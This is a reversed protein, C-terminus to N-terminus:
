KKTIKKLKKKFIPDFYEIVKKIKKQKMQNRKTKQKLVYSYYCLFLFTLLFVGGNQRPTNVAFKITNETTTFNTTKLFSNELIAVCGFVHSNLKKKISFQSGNSLM